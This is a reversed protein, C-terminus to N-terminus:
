ESDESELEIISDNSYIETGNKKNKYKTLLGLIQVTLIPTMSIFAVLGFADTLVNSLSPDGMGYGAGITFPMLFTITLAGSVASGSDFAISYFMKPTIFTLLMIIVYVPLIIFWINLGTLVRVLSLGIALSVGISLFILMTRKSISGASADEVLNNLVIVAPEAAVTVFGFLMGIPIIIYNYPLETFYKGMEFGLNVLGGNAGTLFIVLGVYVYLFALSIKIVQHKSLKFVTLQFIIFTVVFPIIAIFMDKTNALLHTLISLKENPLPAQPSIFLGLFLVALIPGITTIGVIGFSDIESDKSGRAYSIGVGLSMIFPIMLPGTSVGGSDFSVPIFDPNIFSVIGAFLFLLGYSIIATWRLSMQFVIRLLAIVLLLGTGFSVSLILIMPDLVSSFQEGLVRLSPEALIILFGMSFIVLIFLWLKKKNVLFEGIKSAMLMMSNEAGMSFIALGVILLVAGVSFNIILDADMGIIFSIVLVLITLPLVANASEKLKGLFLKIM